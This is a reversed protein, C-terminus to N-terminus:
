GSREEVGRAAARLHRRGSHQLQPLGALRGPVRRRHRELGGGPGLRKRLGPPQERPLRPRTTDRRAAGDARLHRRGPQRLQPLGGLRGPVRQRELGGGPYEDDHTAKTGSIRFDAKPRSGDALVVRGYIDQKRDLYNRNDQWVVLYQGVGDGWEVDPNQDWLVAGPGSIRLDSGQPSGAASVLRGYVDSGRDASDRSDSWVVLYETGNWAVAPAWDNSKAGAGCILRDSGQPSGAASVRRGYIDAGRSPTRQDSWVVLYETGNWAVAPDQDTATAGAGSILFDAAQPVGAASVRRGYVDAGRSPTRQDSWVVLYETGNWAVAPDEDNAVAAPGSILFDSEIPSGDASVRQGFIDRLRSSHNREDMWVVLYESGNWAVAPQWEMEIAGVGSIRHEPYMHPAVRASDGAAGAGAALFLVAAVGSAVVKSCHGATRWM